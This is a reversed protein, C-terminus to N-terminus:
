PKKIKMKFSESFQFNHLWFIWNTEKKFFLKIKKDLSTSLKEFVFLILFFFLIITPNSISFDKFYFIRTILFSVPFAILLFSFLINKSIYFYKFFPEINNEDGKDHEDRQSPHYIELMVKIRDYHKNSLWFILRLFFNVLNNLNRRFFVRDSLHNNVLIEIFENLTFYLKKPKYFIKKRSTDFMVNEEGGFRFNTVKKKYKGETVIRYGGAGEKDADVMETAGNVIDGVLYLRIFIRKDDKSYESGEKYKRILTFGVDDKFSTISEDSDIKTYLKVFEDSNM